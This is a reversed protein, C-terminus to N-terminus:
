SNERKTEFYTVVKSAPRWAVRAGASCLLNRGDIPAPVRLILESEARVRVEVRTVTAEKVLTPTDAPLPKDNQEVVSACGM